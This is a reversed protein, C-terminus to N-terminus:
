GNDRPVLIAEGRCPRATAAPADYWEYEAAHRLPEFKAEPATATLRKLFEEVRNLLRKGDHSSGPELWLLTGIGAARVEVQEFSARLKKYAEANGAMHAVNAVLVLVDSDASDALFANLLDRTHLAVSADWEVCELTAAVGSAELSPACADFMDRFIDLAELSFDAGTVSVNLPLNGGDSAQSARRCESLATLLGLTAAGSGCALDLLKVNAWLLSDALADPIPGYADNPDLFVSIQRAASVGFRGAFHRRAEDASRGGFVHKGPDEAISRLQRDEIILRYAALLARPLHVASNSWISSPTSFRVRM